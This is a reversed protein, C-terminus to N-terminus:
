AVNFFLLIQLHKSIGPHLNEMEHDQDNSLIYKKKLGIMVMFIFSTFKIVKGCFEGM